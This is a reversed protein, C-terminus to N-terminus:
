PLIQFVGATEPALATGDATLMCIYISAQGAFAWAPITTTLDIVTFNQMQDTNTYTFSAIPTNAQDFITIDLESCPTAFLGNDITLEIPVTESRYVSASMKISEINSLYNFNFITANTVIIQSSIDASATIKWTGFVSNTSNPQPAPLRYEVNAIGSQNTVGNGVTITTGNPNQMTFSVTLNSVTLNHYTVLGYIKLLDQPGYTGSMGTGLGGKDTFVLLTANQTTSNNAPAPTSSPSTSPIPTPNSSSTPTPTSTTSLINVTASNCAIKIQNNPDNIFSTNGYQALYYANAITIPSVGYNTVNFTLTALVGSPDTSKDDASIAGAMGGDIVGNVNDFAVPTFDAPDGGPSNDALFPGKAAKILQLVTANWSVNKIYWAWIGPSNDIRIDIKVTTNIASPDLTIVSTNASGSSVASIAPSSTSAQSSGFITLPVFFIVAILISSILWKKPKM